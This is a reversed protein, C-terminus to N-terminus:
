RVVTTLAKDIPWGLRLRMAITARKIGTKEEWESLCLKEGRFELIRNSRTNRAQEKYTAWRCNEKCYHGNNDIREITTNKNGFKKIHKLYSDHMDEKFDEFSKWLHKIGRKGYSSYRNNKPYECRQKIRYYINYFRQHSMGHTKTREGATDKLEQLRCGCSTTQNRTVKDSQAITTKGCDCQFLWYYRFGKDPRAIRSHFKIAILRNFRHGTIDKRRSEVIDGVRGKNWAIQGKTFTM